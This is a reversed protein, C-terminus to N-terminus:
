HTYIYLAAAIFRHISIKSGNIVIYIYVYELVYLTIILTSFIAFKLSCSLLVKRKEVYELRIAEPVSSILNSQLKCAAPVNKSPGYAM